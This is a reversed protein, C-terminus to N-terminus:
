SYSLYLKSGIGSTKTGIKKKTKTEILETFTEKLKSKTETKLNM